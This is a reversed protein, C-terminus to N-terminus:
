AALKGQLYALEAPWAVILNMAEEGERLPFIRLDGDLLHERGADPRRVEKVLAAEVRQRERKELDVPALFIRHLRVLERAAASYRQHDALFKPMLDKCDKKWLGGWLPDKEGLVLREPKWIRYFGGLYNCTHETLRALFSRGTEGVYEARLGEGVEVGILYIGSRGADPATFVSEGELGDLNYPGRWELRVTRAM